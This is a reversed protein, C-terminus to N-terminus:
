DYKLLHKNENKFQKYDIIKVGNLQTKIKLNNQM